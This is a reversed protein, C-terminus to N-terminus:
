TEPLNYSEKFLYLIDTRRIDLTAHSIIRHQHKAGKTFSAAFDQIFSFSLLGFFVSFKQFLLQVQEFLVVKTKLLMM